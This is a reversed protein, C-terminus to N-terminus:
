TRKQRADATAMTVVQHIAYFPESRMRGRRWEPGYRDIMHDVGVRWSSVVNFAPNNRKAVYDLHDIKLYLPDSPRSGLQDSSRWESDYWRLWHERKHDIGFASSFPRIGHHARKEEETDRRDLEVRWAITQFRFERFLVSRETLWPLYDAVIGSMYIGLTTNQDVVAWM